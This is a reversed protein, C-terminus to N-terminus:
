LDDEGKDDDDRFLDLFGNIAPLIIMGAVVAIMAFIFALIIKM